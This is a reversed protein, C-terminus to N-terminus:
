AFVSDTTQIGQGAGLCRHPIAVEAAEISPLRASALNPAEAVRTAKARPQQRDGGVLSTLQEATSPAPGDDLQGHGDRYRGADIGGSAVVARTPTLQRVRSV